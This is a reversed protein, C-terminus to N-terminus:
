FVASEPPKIAPIREIEGKAGRSKRHHDYQGDIADMTVREAIEVEFIALVIFGIGRLVKDFKGRTVMCSGMKLSCNTM